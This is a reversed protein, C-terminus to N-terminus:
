FKVPQCRGAKKICFFLPKPERHKTPFDCVITISIFPWVPNPDVISQHPFSFLSAISHGFRFTKTWSVNNPFHLPFSAEWVIGVHNQNLMCKKFFYQSAFFRTAL